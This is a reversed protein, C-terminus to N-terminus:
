KMVPIWRGSGKEKEYYEVGDMFKHGSPLIYVGPPGFPKAGAPPKGTSHATAKASTGAPPAYDQPKARNFDGQIGVDEPDIGFNKAQQKQYDEMKQLQPDIVKEQMDSLM